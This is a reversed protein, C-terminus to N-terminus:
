MKIEFLKTIINLKHQKINSLGSLAVIAIIIKNDFLEPGMYLLVCMTVAICHIKCKSRTGM